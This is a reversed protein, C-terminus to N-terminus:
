ILAKKALTFLVCLHRSPIGHDCYSRVEAEPLYAVRSKRVVRPLRDAMQWRLGAAHVTPVSRLRGGVSACVVWMRCSCEEYVLLRSRVKFSGILGGWLYWHSTASYIFLSRVAIVADWEQESMATFSKDRLIGANAVLVHVGGFKELAVKVIAEGNEASGM